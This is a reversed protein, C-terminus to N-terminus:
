AQAALRRARQTVEARARGVDVTTCVGDAVVQRGGVWVDRVHERGASWLLHAVVDADATVPTFALDDTDVHVLDARRGAELVGLDDRGIAAAGGATPLSLATAAPVATADGTAVRQLLPALRIEEWLDLNNNSAPGDTAVSVTIGRELM